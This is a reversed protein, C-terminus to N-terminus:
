SCVLYTRGENAALPSKMEGDQAPDAAVTSLLLRTSEAKVSAPRLENSFNLLVVIEFENALTRRYGLVGEHTDLWEQDGAQLVRQANRISLLTRYLSLMSERWTLQADVNCTEADANLPLWPEGSTFGCGNGAISPPHWPIPGREPDRGDIDTLANEHLDLDRLGLEEGQYIFPTGRLTLLLM